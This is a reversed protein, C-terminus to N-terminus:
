DSCCNSPPSQLIACIESIAPTGATTETTTTESLVDNVMEEFIPGAEAASDSSYVSIQVTRVQDLIYCGEWSAALKKAIPESTPNLAQDFVEVASRRSNGDIFRLEEPGIVGQISGAIGGPVAGLPGNVAGLGAGLRLSVVQNEAEKEWDSVTAM